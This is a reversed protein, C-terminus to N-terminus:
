NLVCISNSMVGCFRLYLDNYKRYGTFEKWSSKFNHLENNKGLRLFCSVFCQASPCSSLWLASRLSSSQQDSLCWSSSKLAFMLTFFEFRIVVLLSLRLFFLSATDHQVRWSLCFHARRQHNDDRRLCIQSLPPLYRARSGASFLFCSVSSSYVSPLCNAPQLM